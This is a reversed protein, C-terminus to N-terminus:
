VIVSKPSGKENQNISESNHPRSGSHQVIYSFLTQFHKSKRQLVAFNRDIYNIITNLNVCLPVAKM